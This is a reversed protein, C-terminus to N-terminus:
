SAIPIKSPMQKLAEFYQHVSEKLPVSEAETLIAVLKETQHPNMTPLTGLWYAREENTLLTSRTILAQLQSLEM